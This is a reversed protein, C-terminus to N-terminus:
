LKIFIKVCYCFVLKCALSIGKAIFFYAINAETYLTFDCLMYSCIRLVECHSTGPHDLLATPLFIALHLYSTILRFESKARVLIYNYGQNYIKGNLLIYTRTCDVPAM